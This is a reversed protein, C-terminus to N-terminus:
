AAGPRADFRRGTVGRSGPGLLYLYPGLVDGPAPVSAPDEGPYAQARMPTRAPGPNVSNVRINTTTSTEDALVQMLGEIGFKAAAYAGWYARGRQSVSSVTFVVSADASQRLLPLLTRTLVFAANLNVHLVRMWTPVDYHEIPAREGLQGAVHALGDLRGYSSQLAEALAAYEAAGAREFDLPAITPRPSGDAVITDHVAELRRVTRGCLVVQAGQAGAAIALARGIGSSAGTVLIVRGSLPPSQPRAADPTTPTSM